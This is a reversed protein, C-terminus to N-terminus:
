NQKTVYRGSQGVGNGGQKDEKTWTLIKTSKATNRGNKLDDKVSIRNM